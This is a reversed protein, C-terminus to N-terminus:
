FTAFELCFLVENGCAAPGAAFNAFVLAEVRALIPVIGAAVAFFASDALLM